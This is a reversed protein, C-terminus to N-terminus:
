IPALDSVLFVLKGGNVLSESAFNLLDESLEEQSEPPHVM